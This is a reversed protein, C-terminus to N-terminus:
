FYRLLLWGVVLAIGFILTMYGVTQKLLVPSDDPFPLVSTITAPDNYKFNSNM